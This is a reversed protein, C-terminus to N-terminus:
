SENEEKPLYKLDERSVGLELIPSILDKLLSTNSRDKAVAAPHNADLHLDKDLLEGVIKDDLVYRGQVGRQRDSQQGNLWRFMRQPAILKSGPFVLYFGSNVRMCIMDLLHAEGQFEESVDRKPLYNFRQPDGKLFASLVSALDLSKQALAWGLVQEPYLDWDYNAVFDRLEEASLKQVQALHDEPTGEEWELSDKPTTKNM